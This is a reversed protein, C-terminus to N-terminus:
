PAGWMDAKKKAEHKEAAQAKREEAKKRDEPYKYNPNCNPCPYALHEDHVTVFIMGNSCGTGLEDNDYYGCITVCNSHEDCTKAFEFRPNETGRNDHHLGMHPIQVARKLTM